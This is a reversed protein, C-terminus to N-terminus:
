GQLFGTMSNFIRDVPEPSVVIKELCKTKDTVKRISQLLKM